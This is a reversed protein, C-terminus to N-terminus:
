CRLWSLFEPVKNKSIIIEHKGEIKLNLVLKRAFYQLAETVAERNILYQRNARYFDTGCIEELEELTNSIFYKQNDFTILQAMKYEINFLAIDSIKVPIIKDKWNVLLSTSKRAQQGSQINKFVASYDIGTFSMKTRLAKYKEIAGKITKKSFPKLIYDIGNNRFADLAYENFATCFIIPAEIKVANFIDFSYGDGMQIDCFILDPHEQTRFYQVADAVSNLIKTIQIGDPLEILTEALDEATLQEDEIIVIKM